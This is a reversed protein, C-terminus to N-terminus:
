EHQKNSLRLKQLCLLVKDHLIHNVNINKLKTKSLEIKCLEYKCMKIYLGKDTIYNYRKEM